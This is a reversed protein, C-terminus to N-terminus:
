RTGGEQPHQRFQEYIKRYSTIFREYTYYAKTREYGVDAMSRRLEYDRALRVIEEAM